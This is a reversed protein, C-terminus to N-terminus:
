EVEEANLHNYEYVNKIWSFFEEKTYSNKASNCKWCCPVCNEKTYGLPNNVRDIGNFLYIEPDKKHLRRTLFNSPVSGCYFCAKTIINEIDPVSLCFQLNRKNARYKYRRYIKAFVVKEISGALKRIAIKNYCGCSKTYGHLLSDRRVTTINGCDCLCKWYLGKNSKSTREKDINIVTLMGFKKKFLDLKINGM